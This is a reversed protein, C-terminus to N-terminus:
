SHSVEDDEECTLEEEDAIADDVTFALAFVVAVPTSVDRSDACAACVTLTVTLAGRCRAVVISSGGYV